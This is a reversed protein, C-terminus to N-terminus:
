ANLFFISAKVLLYLSTWKKTNPFTIKKNIKPKSYHPYCDSTWYSLSPVRWNPCNSCPQLVHSNSIHTSYLFDCPIAYYRQDTVVQGCSFLPLFSLSRYLPSSQRRVWDVQCWEAPLSGSCSCRSRVKRGWEPAGSECVRISSLFCSLMTICYM